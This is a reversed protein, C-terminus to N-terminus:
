AYQMRANEATTPEIGIINLFIDNDYECRLMHNTCQQSNLGLLTM